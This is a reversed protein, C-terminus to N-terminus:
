DCKSYFTTDDVYGAIKCIFDDPFDNTYLLFFIPGHISGQTARANVPCEQFTKGNLFM